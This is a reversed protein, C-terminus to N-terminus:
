QVVKILRNKQPISTLEMGNQIAFIEWLDKKMGARRFMTQMTQRGSARFLKIRVPQRNIYRHDRLENFSGIVTSFQYDYKQFDGVTSLSIFTYIYSGKRIYSLRVKLDDANEQTIEYLQQFSSMGNITLNQQKILRWGQSDATKKQAYQSLGETTKEARLIVGANGNESLLTVQAPTNQVKWESPITFYFRLVPHFFRGNEVYGQRPDEGYVINNIRNLYESPRVKLQTDAALIMAQTNRIREGTLPHTSLFGPLSHGGSLDGMKELANFFNIMKQPNFGGARAYTIGLHDAEREDDRSFKLFLLQMGVAAV